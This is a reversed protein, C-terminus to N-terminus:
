SKPVPILMDACAQGVERNPEKSGPMTAWGDKTVVDGRSYREAKELAALRVAFNSESRFRADCISALARIVAADAQRKGLTESSSATKWGLADFG